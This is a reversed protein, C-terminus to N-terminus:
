GRIITMFTHHPKEKPFADIDVKIELIIHPDNSEKKIENSFLIPVTSEDSGRIVTMFTHHPKEKPFADIDVKIELIIHPDKQDDRIMQILLTISSQNNGRTTTLLNHHPKQNLSSGIKVYLIIHRDNQEEKRWKKYSSFDARWIALSFFLFPQMRRRSCPGVASTGEGEVSFGFFSFLDTLLEVRNGVM